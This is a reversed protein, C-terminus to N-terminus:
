KVVEFDISDRLQATDVLTDGSTKDAKAISMGDKLNRNINAQVRQSTKWLGYGENTFAKQSIKKCALGIEKMWKNMLDEYGIKGFRKFPNDGLKDLYPKLHDTIPTILFSRKPPHQGDESGFEHIAGIDANTLDSEGEMNLRVAKEGIIGVKVYIGESDTFDKAVRRLLKDDLEDAM